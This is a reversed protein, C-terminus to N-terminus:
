LNLLDNFIVDRLERLDSRKYVAPGFSLFYLRRKNDKVM